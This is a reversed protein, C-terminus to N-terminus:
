VARRFFGLLQECLASRGQIFREFGFASYGSEGGGALTQAFSRVGTEPPAILAVLVSGDSKRM